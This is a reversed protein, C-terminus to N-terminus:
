ETELNQKRESGIKKSKECKKHCNGRHAKAKGRSNKKMEEWKTYQETTLIEKMSAQFADRVPRMEKKMAEKDEKHKARIEKASTMKVLIAAEVKKTQEDSLELATQLKEARMTAREEPTKVKREDNQAFTSLAMLSMLAGIFLKKM